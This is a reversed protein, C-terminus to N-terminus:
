PKYGIRKLRTIANLVARSQSPTAAIHCKKGDKEVCYHGCKTLFVTFGQAVLKKRLEKMEQARSM